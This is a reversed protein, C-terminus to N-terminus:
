NIPLHSNIFDTLQLQLNIISTDEWDGHGGDYVTFSHTISSNSLKDNLLVGNTLPVLPDQNGYFLISPSSTNSVQLAPSTVEAYNTGFPYASEDVLANLGLRFLPNEAYFPDTFNTPGVLDAVMKVVDHTDYVYDYMLAIHAGASTGILGFEPLIALEEKQLTLQDIITGLDLFQNPFAPTFPPNTSALVYNINVIAHDPHYQQILSVFNEMDSKDGGTWGGGHVLVIVKTKNASRGYPLYTDYVQQPNTGYSVNLITEAELPDTIIIGFGETTDESSCSIFTFDGLFLLLIFYILKKM